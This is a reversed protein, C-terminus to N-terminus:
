DGLLTQIWRPVRSRVDNLVVGLNMTPQMAELARRALSAPTSRQRVVLISADSKRLLFLGNANSLVPPVDFVVHDFEDTLVGLLWEFESSRVIMNRKIEPVPATSLSVLQPLEPSSQFASLVNSRDALIDVLSPRPDDPDRTQGATMWSCDIWCVFKGFDHAIMLALAQSVTTVGEGEVASTVSIISPLSEGARLEYRNVLGRLSESLADPINEYRM